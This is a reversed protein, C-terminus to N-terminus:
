TGVKVIYLNCQKCYSIHCYVLNYSPLIKWFSIIEEIGNVSDFVYSKGTIHFCFWSSNLRIIKCAKWYLYILGFRRQGSDPQFSGGIFYPRFSGGWSPRFSEDWFDSRFSWPLFSRVSCSYSWFSGFEDKDKWLTLQCQFICKDDHM